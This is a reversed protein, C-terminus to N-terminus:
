SASNFLKNKIIIFYMTIVLTESIILSVIVGYVNLIPTLVIILLLTVPTAVMTTSIYQKQKDWGLVLQKFPLAISQLLPIILAIKLLDSIFIVEKPNFYDVIQFAFLAIFLLLSFVFLFNIGNVKKWFFMGEEKSKDLLYCVRPFVFNFFLIIYTRFIVIIQEIIKFQGAMINNGFLSILVIPSYMQLSVFIQSSFMSFNSKIYTKVGYMKTKKFSFSFQKVVYIFVFSNAIIMGLGWFLNNYIYDEPSHIFMFVGLVYIVKSIINLITIWKFNEIGQLFWTPNIFQGVLILLSLFFLAKEKIFYPIIIIIFSAIVLVLFLLILKATYITIFLKELNKPNERNISVEKVGLIDSGYDIFVMLFFAIALGVGIKGYGDESCVSVLHPVVLIPTVLNFFQGVGYTFFNNLQKQKKIFDISSKLM